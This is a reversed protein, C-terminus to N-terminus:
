WELRAGLKVGGSTGNDGGFGGDYSVFATVGNGFTVDVAAGLAAYTNDRTDLTSTFAGGTTNFTGSVTRDGERWEQALAASLSPRVAWEGDPAKMTVALEAGVSGRYTDSTVDGVSMGGTGGGTETYGERAVHQWGLNAKPTLTWNGQIPITHGIGIGAGTTWATPSGNANILTGGSLVTRQIDMDQYGATVAGTLFTNGMVYNAYVATNFGDISTRSGGGSTKVTSDIYGGALGVSLNGTKFLEGGIAGGTSRQEYGRAFGDGSRKDNQWLGTGWLGKNHGAGNRAQGLVADLFSFSSASAGGVSGNVSSPSATTLSATTGTYVVAGNVATFTGTVAGTSTLFDGSFGDAGGLFQPVIIAGPAITATGPAGTVNLLDAVGNEIQIVLQSGAAFNVSGNITLTGPSNGPSITGYNNITGYITGSGGLTGGTNVTIGSEGADLVGNVKFTGSNITVQDAEISGTTNWIGTADVTMDNINNTDYNFTGAGLLVLDNNGSESNIDGYVVASDLSLTNNSGELSIATSGFAGVTGAVLITNRTGNVEIGTGGYVSADSGVNISSYSSNLVIGTTGGFVSSSGNLTISTENGIAAIGYGYDARVVASDNLTLTFGDTESAVLIATNNSGYGHTRVASTGNLTITGNDGTAYIGIAPFSYKLGASGYVDISSSGNLAISVDDGNAVIGFAQGGSEATTLIKISSNGNLAITQANGISFVGFYNNGDGGTGTINIASDNLTIDNAYTFEGSTLVSIGVYKNDSGGHTNVNVSSGSNLTISGADDSYYGSSIINIGTYKSETGDYSNITVDSGGNLTVLPNIGGGAIGSYKNDYGNAAFINISSGDNLTVSPAYKGGLGFYVGSSVAYATGNEAGYLTIDSGGNLTLSVVEDAYKSGSGIMVGIIDSDNVGSQTREVRVSSGGNLTVATADGRAYIGIYKSIGGDSSATVEVSSGGNLTVSNGNGYSVLGTYKGNATGGYGELIIQAGGNLTVTNDDGYVVVSYVDGYTHAISGAGLTVTNGDGYLGIVNAGDNYLEADANLTVTADDASGRISGYNYDSCVIDVGDDLPGGVCVSAPLAIAQSSMMGIFVTGAAALASTGLLRARL